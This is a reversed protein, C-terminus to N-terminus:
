GGYGVIVASAKICTMLVIARALRKLSSCVSVELLVTAQGLCGLRSSHLGQYGSWRGLKEQHPQALLLTSSLAPLWGSVAKLWLAASNTGGLRVQHLEAGELRVSQESSGTLHIPLQTSVGEVQFQRLAAKSDQSIFPGFM